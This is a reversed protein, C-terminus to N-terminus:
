FFLLGGVSNMLASAFLRVHLLIDIYEGRWNGFSIFFRYVVIGFSIEFVLLPGVGTKERM